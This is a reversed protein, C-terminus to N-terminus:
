RRFFVRFVTGVGLTSYVQVRGGANEVIRKVVYLGIGTGAVHDHFRQFPAFLEAQQAANLGLGNDEVTLVTYDPQQQCSVQVCPPRDPHSYKLANSLLNYVVSRVTAPPAVVAECDADAIDLHAHTHTLQPRLDQLVDQLIRRLDTREAPAPAQQARAVQLMQDVTEKFRGASEYLLQVLQAISPSLEADPLEERLAQLLGEINLVPGRLDHSAMYVFTDLDMNLAQLEANRATLAANLAQAHDRATALEATRQQLAQEVQHREDIDTVSGIYGAFAGQEDHRPRAMDWVWRYVGDHRRLRYLVAFARRQAIADRAEEGTAAVDDPHVAQQWGHGLGDGDAQGTYAHWSANLYVCAGAVDTQWILNPVLDAMRRFSRESAQLAERRRKEALRADVSTRDQHSTDTFSVVLVDGHRQAALQFYANLEDHPYDLDFHHVRGSAYAACYFAFVGAAAAHPYHTLYSDAPQEPLHLRRQAAENLRVFAFDVIQGAADLLPRYVIIGTLSVRLVTDLFTLEAAPASIDPM